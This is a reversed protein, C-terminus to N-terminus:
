VQDLIEELITYGPERNLTERLLDELTEARDAALRLIFSPGTDTYSESEIRVDPTRDVIHYIRSVEDYAVVISMRVVSILTKVPVGALADKACDGYARVLGGVGLKTGGFYRTVVVLVNTLDAGTLVQLIPKGASGSPEGDDSSKELDPHVRWAYCNHTADHYKKRITHLVNLAAEESNVPFLAGIFKSGKITFQAHGEKEPVQIKQSPPNKM